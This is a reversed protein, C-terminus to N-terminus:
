LRDASQNHSLGRGAVIDLKSWHHGLSVEVRNHAEEIARASLPDPGNDAAGRDLVLAVEDWGRHEHVYRGTGLAGSILYETRYDGDFVIVFSSSAIARALSTGYPSAAETHVSFARRLMTDPELVPDGGTM